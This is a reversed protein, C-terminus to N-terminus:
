MQYLQYQDGGESYSTRLNTSQQSTLTSNEMMRLVMSYKRKIKEGREGLKQIASESMFIKYGVGNVDLFISKESKEEIFGKLFSIM